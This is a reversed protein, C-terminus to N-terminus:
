FVGHSSADHEDASDFEESDPDVGMKGHEDYRHDGPEKVGLATQGSMDTEEETNYVWMALSSLALSLWQEMTLM